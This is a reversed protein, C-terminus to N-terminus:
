ESPSATSSRIVLHTALEAHTVRDLESGSTRSLLARVAMAGMLDIPQHVTTLPPASMQSVILDDFGVVSLDEPVRLGRRRAAEIVGLAQFDSAALIATPPVDLAFLEDALEIGSDFTFDRDLLYDSRVQAGAMQMAAQYGSIRARSAMTVKLGGLLAIRQHGLQLLHETANYSGAWNTAGVSVTREDPDEVSDVVVLPIGRTALADRDTAPLTSTVAILGGRASSAIRDIWGQGDDDEPYPALVLDAGDAATAEVAGRIVELTFPSYMDRAMLTITTAAARRKRTSVYGRENLIHEVRARTSDSVDPAGNAVKSVTSISVGAVAAVDALSLRKPQARKAM